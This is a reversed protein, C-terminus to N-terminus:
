GLKNAQNMWTDIEDRRFLLKGGAKIHPIQRSRQYITRVSLGLYDALENVDMPKENGAIKENKLQRIVEAAIQPTNERFVTEMTQKIFDELM